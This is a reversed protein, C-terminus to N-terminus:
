CYLAQLHLQSYRMSCVSTIEPLDKKDIRINAHVKETAKENFIQLKINLLVINTQYM